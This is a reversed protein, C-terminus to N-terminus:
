RGRRELTIARPEPHREPSRIANLRHNASMELRTHEKSVLRQEVVVRLSVLLSLVVVQFHYLLM